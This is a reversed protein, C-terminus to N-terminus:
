LQTVFDHELSFRPDIKVRDSDNLFLASFFDDQKDTEMEKQKSSNM